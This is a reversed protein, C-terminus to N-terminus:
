GLRQRARAVPADALVRAECWRVMVVNDTLLLIVARVLQGARVTATAHGNARPGPPVSSWNDITDVGRAV